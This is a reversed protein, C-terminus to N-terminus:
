AEPAPVPTAEGGAKRRKRPQRPIRSRLAMGHATNAKFRIRAVAYWAVCWEWLDELAARRAGASGRRAARAGAVSEQATGCELRLARFDAWTMGDPVYAADIQAWAKEWALAEAQVARITRVGARLPRLIDLTEPNKRFKIRALRVGALMQDRLEAVKQNREGRSGVTDTHKRITSEIKVGAATCKVKFQAPTLEDWVWTSALVLMMSHTNQARETVFEITFSMGTNVKSVGM